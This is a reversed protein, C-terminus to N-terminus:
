TNTQHHFYQSWLGTPVWGQIEELFSPKTNALKM